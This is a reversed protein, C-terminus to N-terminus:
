GSVFESGAQGTWGDCIRPQMEALDEASLPEPDADELLAQLLRKALNAQQEPLLDVLRHLEERAKSM